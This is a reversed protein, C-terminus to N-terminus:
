LAGGLRAQTSRPLFVGQRAYIVAQRYLPQHDMYKATLVQALLGPAPLGKDIVQPPLPAATVTECTRCAYKPRIHRHVFFQAPIIDLQESIDEGIVTLANGCAGCTCDELAHRHEIRPRHDPLPQRNRRRQQLQAPGADGTASASVSAAALDAELDEQWLSLPNPDFRESSAGFRWRKLRALEFKLAENHLTKEKLEAAQVRYATLLSVAIQRLDDYSDPWTEPLALM